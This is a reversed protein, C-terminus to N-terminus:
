ISKYKELIEEILLEGSVAKHLLRVIKERKNHISDEPLTQDNASLFSSLKSITSYNFLDGIGVKGPFEKEILSHLKTLLISDGGIEFFNDHINFLEFGLVEMWLNAVKQITESYHLGENGILKASIKHKNTNVTLVDNKVSYIESWIEKSLNISLCDKLELISKGYIHGNSNFEGIIVKEIDRNIIDEFASIAKKTSIPKFISDPNVGYNLAMGTEEWPPWNITLTKKKLKSRYSTFADLYSNAATYDGQGPAGTISTVSSCMIFFDLEDSKTLNDLVWTGELKPLMVEQFTKQDKEILFGSGSIGACHIIGNIKGYQERLKNLLLKIEEPKSVDASYYEVNSGQAEIDQIIKMKSYINISKKDTYPTGLKDQELIPTRGILALNVKNKNALYKSIEIGIGGAGGTIVYVGESKIDLKSINFDELDIRNLEEIYRRGNRYATQFNLKKNALENIICDVETDDDIDICRCSIGPYELAIVKGLGFLTSNEPKLLEEQKTVQNVYESVVLIDIHLSEKQALVANVLNLLSYVGYKQSEELEKLRNIEVGKTISSLHLIETLDKACEESMLRKYDEYSAGVRYSNKNIEKFGEGIELEIVKRNEVKLKKIVEKAIGKQDKVVLVTGNIVENERQALSEKKWFSKFYIGRSHTLRERSMSDEVQLWCRKAEFPYTPITVRDRKENKYFQEWYIDAGAVYLRCIESLINEKREEVSLFEQTRNAAIQTLKKREEETSSSKAASDALKQGSFYLWEESIYNIGLANIQRIKHIFDEKDKLIMAIRYSYHGRGSNATFCINKLDLETGKELFEQYQKMMDQLVTLSKASITIIELGDKIGGTCTTREPAEELVIHCNTGSLGFSSVGCRRPLTGIKWDSVRDAVYVPSQEFNINRNPRNFHLMPPIQKKRLALVAKVLGALGAAADLHGINTKVSSIACFQKKSTYRRFAKEIGDIEIPDGLSTGTGHAEIYSITEPNIGAHNWADAIVNAQATANPATIGISSGDQNVASGIIVAYINDRDSIAKDLPKLLVAVVGEGDGTGNASDDFTKARGDLSEIGLKYEREIPLLNIKIGGAIAMDCENSRIAQCAMHLAVLSSSCATDVVMSPGKLDLLYSIRSAIIPTLNGPVSISASSPTVDSIFRKYDYIFDGNFGVYVGTKSGALKEGGYGGDEVASWATELFIRQNPDILRAENPSIRFFGYDFKDIDEMYAAVPHRVESCKKGVLKLYDLADNKRGEPITRISDVGNKINEWFEDINKVDGLRASMGIIAISKEGTDSTKNSREDNEAKQEQQELIFGSLKRITPYTFFDTIKVKGPYKKNVTSHMQILSISNGGIDFFNDRVGIMKIGLVKQWIELLNREIENDPSTHNDEEKNDEMPDPLRKRDIKGNPSLPLEDMCVFFSPIMYSPLEKSLFQKIEVFSAPERCVIYACLYKNGNVGERATVVAEKVIEHKMLVHEIEGVEIRFGRIKVQHDLRGLFEINGEMNWCAIDGTKYIKDGPVFPNPLFKESTLAPNNLYGRALGDGSIYLEGPVGIPQLMNNKDLILLRINDIPKGIPVTKINKVDFCEFYSVDITAETPGYLNILKVGNTSHLIKNFKEVQLMNLAEGSTFIRRLSRTKYIWEKNDELYELFANLMSPVFHMTTIDHKEIADMIAEPNKEGGPQLFCVKSGVMSWWFLEWVSVDFTFPTKQLITDNEYLTYKKQMWNLRNVLSYHEIMVGKPKGTSGSTYIVYALNNSTNVREPNSCDGKYLTKEQLFVVDGSFQITDRLSDQVLLVKVGSDKLIYQIRGDPYEPDIPLYAGGAKLIGMIGVVMESSRRSMIAVISDAKVGKDKLVRALQNAKKNLKSYTLTSNEFIVATNGPKDEAMDEFIWHIAKDKPYDANTNNFDFLLQRKEEDSIIELNSLKMGQCRVITTLINVFHQSLTHVRAESLVSPNYNFNLSIGNFTTIELVLDYSTMEYISYSKINLLSGIKNLSQDLPYNEIVVISDFLAENTKVGAYSNIDILPTNEYGRRNNLNESVNKITEIVGCDVSTNIRLPITNIFLGVISEINKIQLGRGSVTTGFVVDECNNYRQLIIGWVTYLVAALTIENTKIFCGLDKTLDEVLSCKYSNVKKTKDNNTFDKPILSKAQYGATYQQWFLQQTDKDLKKNYLILDKFKGKLPKEPKRRNFLSGYAQVLESLIIGNSWGDYLIHHNSIIMELEDNKFKCITIRYPEKSIDITNKRDNLKVENIIEQKRTYEDHFFDLVKIAPFYKKLVIQVPKETKGWSFITRLMENNQIVFEWSEKLIEMNIEGSVELSLQEFYQEKQTETLYHFLIGEQMSTLALIDEVNEM